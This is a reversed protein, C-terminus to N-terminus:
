LDLLTRTRTTRCSVFVVHTSWAYFAQPLGISSEFDFCVKLVSIWRIRKWPQSYWGIYPMYNTNLSGHESLKTSENTEGSNQTMDHVWIREAHGEKSKEEQIKGSWCAVLRRLELCGPRPKYSGVQRSAVLENVTWRPTSGIPSRRCGCCAWVPRGCRRVWHSAWNLLDSHQEDQVAFVDSGVDSYRRYVVCATM